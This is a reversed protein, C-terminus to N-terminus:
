SRTVRAGAIARRFATVAAGVDPSGVVAAIAVVADAGAAIVEGAMDLTIGGIAVIPIDVAARVARIGEIGCVPGADPKTSTACIPGLGIYDAGRRQADAAEAASGASVGIVADPGLIRRAEEIPLDDQGLHVGDAGAAFAIDVRDNVLFLARGRCIGALQRATALLVRGTTDKDRYQVIICGADVAARVDAEVGARTLRSDTALYYDMRALLSKDAM